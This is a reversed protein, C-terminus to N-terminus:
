LLSVQHFLYPLMAHGRAHMCSEVVDFRSFINPSIFECFHIWFFQVTEAYHFIQSIFFLSTSFCAFVIRLSSIKSRDLRHVRRQWVKLNGMM